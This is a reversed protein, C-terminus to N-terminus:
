GGAGGLVGIAVASLAASGAGMYKGGAIVEMFSSLDLGTNSLWAM